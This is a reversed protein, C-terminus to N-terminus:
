QIVETAQLLVHQPITLGLAQATKLNIVFDFRMPRQVPLTAPSTGKLIKDVFAAARRGNGAYSEEYALLGGAVAFQRGDYITPLRQENAMDVVRQRQAITFASQLVVLGDRDSRTLAILAPELQSHDNVTVVQAEVGLAQAAGQSVAEVEAHNVSQLNYPSLVAARSLSPATEKLLELLKGTLEPGLNTLGTVNGGPRALSDVLATRVMDGVGWMQVIPVTSTVARADMTLLIGVTVLLDVPLQVLEAACAAGLERNAAEPYRAEIVLNQGEVYGLERLGERLETELGRNDPNSALVGLRWVRPSPLAQGPLRGCGALLGVLGVGQVFQRRSWRDM